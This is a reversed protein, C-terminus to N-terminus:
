VDMRLVSVEPPLSYVGIQKKYGGVMHSEHLSTICILINNMAHEYNM